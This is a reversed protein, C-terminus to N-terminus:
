TLFVASAHAKKEWAINPQACSDPKVTGHVNVCFAPAPNGRGPFMIDLTPAPDERGILALALAPAPDGWAILMRVFM